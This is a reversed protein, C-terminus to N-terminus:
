RRGVMASLIIGFTGITLLTLIIMAPPLGRGTRGTVAPPLTITPAPTAPTFTPLRTPLVSSFQAAFTPDITPQNKPVATPPPNVIPLDVAGYHLIIFDANVWAMGGPASAYLIQIWLGAKSQGLAKCTEGMVLIGVIDYDSANPGSRLNVQDVNGKCCEVYPPELEDGGTGQAQVANPLLFLIGMGLCATLVQRLLSALRRTIRWETSSFFINRKKMRKM